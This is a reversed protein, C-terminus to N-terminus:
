EHDRLGKIWTLPPRMENLWQCWFVIWCAKFIFCNPSFRVFLFFGGFSFGFVCWFFFQQYNLLVGLGQLNMWALILVGSSYPKWADIQVCRRTWKIFTRGEWLILSSPAPEKLLSWGCARSHCRKLPPIVDTCFSCWANRCFLGTSGQPPLTSLELLTLPLWHFM